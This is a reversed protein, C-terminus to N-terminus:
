SVSSGTSCVSHGGTGGSICRDTNQEPAQGSSGTSCVDDGGTGGSICRDKNQEPAQGSSGTSCVGYGGTSGSICRDSAVSGSMETLEPSEYKKDTM